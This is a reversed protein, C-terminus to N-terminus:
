RIEFFSYFFCMIFLEFSKGNRTQDKFANLEDISDFEKLGDKIRQKNAKELIKQNQIAQADELLQQFVM